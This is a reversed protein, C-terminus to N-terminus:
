SESSFTRMEMESESSSDSGDDARGKERRLSQRKVPGPKRIHMAKRSGPFRSPSRWDPAM